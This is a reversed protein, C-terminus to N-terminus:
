FLNILVLYVVDVYVVDVVHMETVNGDIGGVNGMHSVARRFYRPPSKILTHVHFKSDRYIKRINYTLALHVSGKHVNSGQLKFLRSSISPHNLKILLDSM